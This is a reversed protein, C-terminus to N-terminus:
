SELTIKVGVAAAEFFETCTDDKYTAGLLEVIDVAQDDGSAFGAGEQLQQTFVSELFEVLEDVGLWCEAGASARDKQGLVNGVGVLLSQVGDVHGHLAVSVAALDVGGDEFSDGGQAFLRQLHNKDAGRADLLDSFADFGQGFAVSIRHQHPLSTDHGCSKM